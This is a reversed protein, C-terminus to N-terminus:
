GVQAGSKSFCLVSPPRRPLSGFLSLVGAASRRRFAPSKSGPILARRSRCRFLPNMVQSGDARRRIKRIPPPECSSRPISLLRICARGPAAAAAAAAASSSRCAGACARRAREEQARRRPGAQRQEVDEGYKGRAGAAEAAAHAVHHLHSACRRGGCVPNLAARGADWRAAGNLEASMHLRHTRHSHPPAFSVPTVRSRDPHAAPMGDQVTSRARLPLRRPARPTDRGEWWWRTMSTGSAILLALAASSAM